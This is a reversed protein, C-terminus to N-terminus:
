RQVPVNIPLADTARHCANCAALTDDWASRFRGPDRDVAAARLAPFHRELLDGLPQVRLQVPLAERSERLAAEAEQAAVDAARWDGDRAAARSAVLRTLSAIMTTRASSDPTPAPRADPRSSWWVVAIVLAVFVVATLLVDRRGM